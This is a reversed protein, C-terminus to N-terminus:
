GVEQIQPAPTPLLAAVEEGTMIEVEILRDVIRLVADANALILEKAVAYARDLRDELQRAIDPRRILLLDISEPTPMGSWVPTAAGSLGLATIASTAALTAKAIDSETGGGAGSSVTGLIVEEAARGALLITLLCDIDESTALDLEPRLSMVGGGTTTTQRISVYQLTNSHFHSIAIAHGAEHVACRRLATNSMTPANGRIELVLDDLSLSRAAQRGRRKAGRVWRAVDAGSGGLALKAAISLDAGPLDGALHHRMIQRLGDEDPLSIVIHRDLRGSRTIAPDIRGPLNTAGIVVVGERSTVGDLLELFGNIVQVSYDKHGSNLNARDGFGDIEDVLIICPAAARAEEFTKRMSKLLDGLHGSSQWEGLSAAILPVGCSGALARAFTTKGTGPPGSLLVGRDIDSWTLAGDIYDSLDRALAQGWTVAEDMGGLMDLTLTPPKRRGEILAKLRHIANSADQGPRLTLRLDDPGVKTAIADSIEEIATTGTLEAIVEIILTKDPPQVTLTADAADLLASPLQSAPDAAFGAIRGNHMLTTAVATSSGEASKRPAYEESRVYAVYPPDKPDYWRFDSASPSDGNTMQRGGLLKASWSKAIAKIWPAPATVVVATGQQKAVELATPNATLAIDLMRDALLAAPDRPQPLPEGPDIQNPHDAQDMQTAFGHKKSPRPSKM